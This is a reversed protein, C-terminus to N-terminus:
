KGDDTDRRFEEWFCFLAKELETAGIELAVANLIMTKSINAEKTFTVIYSPGSSSLRKSICAIDRWPVPIKFHACETLGRKDLTIYPVKIRILIQFFTWCVWVGFFLGPVSLLSRYINTNNITMLLFVISILLGFIVFGAVKWKSYFIKKESFKRSVIL